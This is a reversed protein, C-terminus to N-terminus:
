TQKVEVPIPIKAAELGKVFKEVILDLSDRHLFHNSHIIKWIYEFSNFDTPYFRDTGLVTRVFTQPDNTIFRDYERLLKPKKLRKTKGHFSRRTSFLGYPMRVVRSEVLMAEGDENTELVNRSSESVVSRMLESRVAGSYKSEGSVLDPSHYAFKSWQLNDSFMLDVQVDNPSLFSIQELGPAEKYELGLEDLAEKVKDFPDKGLSPKLVAIDLDGMTGHTKGYSGLTTYDVNHYNLGLYPALVKQFWNYVLHMEVQSYRDTSFTKGGM